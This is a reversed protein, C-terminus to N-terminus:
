ETYCARPKDVQSSSVTEKRKMAMILVVVEKDMWGNSFMQIADLDNITFLEAIFMLTCM